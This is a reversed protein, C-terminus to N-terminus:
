GVVNIFNRKWEWFEVVILLIFLIGKNVVVMGDLGDLLNIVM